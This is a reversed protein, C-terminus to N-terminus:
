GYPAHRQTREFGRYVRRARMRGRPRYSSGLSPESLSVGEDLTKRGEPYQVARDWDELSMFPSRLWARLEHLFLRTNERGLFEQLMDEAQGGSGQTDVTKLIAIIYELLFEANNARRLTTPNSSEAADGSLFEFVQLERRIWKRARSVLEADSNFIQPTLDRFRSIRNSGVHLSYLNDRYIQRRRQISDTATGQSRRAFSHRSRYSRHRRPISYRSFPSTVSPAPAARQPVKYVKYRHDATFDFHVGLVEAQCLPCTTRQELWNLLCLYDFSKHRCPNAEAQVTIRDLCIVCCEEAETSSSLDRSSVENLTKQLVETRADLTEGDM